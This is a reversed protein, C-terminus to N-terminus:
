ARWGGDSWSHEDPPPGSLAIATLTDVEHRLRAVAVMASMTVAAAACAMAVRTDVAAEVAMREAACAVAAMAAAVTVQLELTLTRDIEVVIVSECCVGRGKGAKNRSRRHRALALPSCAKTCPCGDPVIDASVEAHGFVHALSRLLKSKEKMVTAPNAIIDSDAKISSRSSTKSRAIHIPTLRTRARTSIRLLGVFHDRGSYHIAALDLRNAPAGVPWVLLQCYVSLQM